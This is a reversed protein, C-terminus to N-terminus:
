FLESLISRLIIIVHKRVQSFKPVSSVCTKNSNTLCTLAANVGKEVQILLTSFILMEKVFLM